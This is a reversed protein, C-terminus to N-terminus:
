RGDTDLAQVSVPGLTPEFTSKTQGHSDTFLYKFGSTTGQVIASTAIPVITGLKGEESTVQSFALTSTTPKGTTEGDTKSVPISPSPTAVVTSNIGTSGSKLVGSGTSTDAIPIAKGTSNIGALTSSSIGTDNGTRSSSLRAQSSMTSSPVIATLSTAGTSIISLAPSRSSGSPVPSGIPVIDTGYPAYPMTKVSRVVSEDTNMHTVPKGAVVSHAASTSFMEYDSKKFGESNLATFEFGQYIIGKSASETPISYVPFSLSSQGHVITAFLGGMVMLALPNLHSSRHSQFM